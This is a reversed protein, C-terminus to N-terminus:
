YLVVIPIREPRIPVVAELEATLVLEEGALVKRKPEVQSGSLTLNGKEIWEKLRSRSYEPILMAATQDFRRGAFEPPVTVRRSIEEVEQVSDQEPDQEPDQVSDQEPGMDPAGVFSEVM